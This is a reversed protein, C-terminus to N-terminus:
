PKCWDCPPHPCNDGPVHGIDEGREVAAYCCRCCENM